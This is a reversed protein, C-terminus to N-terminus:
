YPLSILTSINMHKGDLIQRTTSPGYIDAAIWAYDIGSNEISSGIARLACLVTHFEGVRFIYKDKYEPHILELRRAKEYLAMDLTIVTKKDPGMVETTIYQAQKIVTMMTQWEHAPADVLPLPHVKTLPKTDTVCSSNYASWTASTTQCSEILDDEMGAETRDENSANSTDSSKTTRSLLWAVDNMKHKTLLEM